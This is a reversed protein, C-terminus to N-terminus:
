ESEAVKYNPVKRNRFRSRGADERAYTCIYIYIYRTLAGDRERERERWVIYVLASALGYNMGRVSRATHERGRRGDCCSSDRPSCCCLEGILRDSSRNAHIQLHCCSKYLRTTVRPHNSALSPLISQINVSSAVLESKRLSHFLSIKHRSKQKRMSSAKSPHFFKRSSFHQFLHKLAIHRHQFKVFKDYYKHFFNFNRKNQSYFYQGSTCSTFIGSISLHCTNM